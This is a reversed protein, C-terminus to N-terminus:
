AFSARKHSLSRWILQPGEPAPEPQRLPDAGPRQYARQSRLHGCFRCPHLTRPVRQVTTRGPPLSRPFTHAPKRPPNGPLPRAVLPALAERHFSNLAWLPFQPRIPHANPLTGIACGGYRGGMTPSLATLRVRRRWMATRSAPRPSRCPGRVPLCSERLAASRGIHRHRAQVLQGLHRACRLRYHERWGVRGYVGRDGIEWWVDTRVM